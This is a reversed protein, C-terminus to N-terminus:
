RASAVRRDPCLQQILAELDPVQIPKTIARVRSGLRYLTPDLPYGTALIIPVSPDIGNVRRALELGSMEPLSVDTMMLDFRQANFAALAEEGTAVAVIERTGDSLLECTLERVLANDEVYLVRLPSRPREPAM